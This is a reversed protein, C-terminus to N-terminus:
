RRLRSLSKDMDMLDSILNKRIDICSHYLLVHHNTTEDGISCSNNKTDQIKQIFKKIHLHSFGLRLKTLLKVGALKRIDYNKLFLYLWFSGCEETIAFHIAFLQKKTMFDIYEASVQQFGYECYFRYTFGDYFPQQFYLLIVM